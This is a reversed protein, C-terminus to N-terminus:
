KNAIVIKRHIMRKQMGIGAGSQPTLKKEM